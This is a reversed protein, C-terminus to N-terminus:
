PGEKPNFEVKTTTMSQDIVMDEVLSDVAAQLRDELKAMIRGLGEVTIQPVVPFQITGVVKSM